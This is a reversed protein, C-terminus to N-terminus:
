VSSQHLIIDPLTLTYLFYETEQQQEHQQQQQPSARGFFSVAEPTEFRIQIFNPLVTRWTFACQNFSSMKSELYHGNVDNPASTLPPLRDCIKPDLCGRERSEERWECPSELPDPCLGCVRQRVNQHLKYLWVAKYFGCLTSCFDAHM